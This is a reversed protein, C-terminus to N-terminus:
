SAPPVIPVDHGRGRNLALWCLIVALLGAGRGWWPSWSPFPSAYVAIHFAEDEHYTLILWPTSAVVRLHASPGVMKSFVTRNNVYDIIEVIENNTKSWHPLWGRAQLRDYLWNPLYQQFNSTTYVCRQHVGTLLNGEYRPVDALHSTNGAKDISIIRSFRGTTPNEVFHVHEADLTAVRDYRGPLWQMTPFHLLCGPEGSSSDMASEIAIADPHSSTVYMYGRGNGTREASLMGTETDYVQIGPPLTLFQRIPSARLSVESSRPEKNEYGRPLYADPLVLYKGDYSLAAQGQRHLWPLTITREMKCEPISWVRLLILDSCQLQTAALNALCTGLHGPFLMSPVATAREVQLMRTGDKCFSFTSLKPFSRMVSVQQTLLNWQMLDHGVQESLNKPPRREYRPQIFRLTGDPDAAHVGPLAYSSDIGLPMRVDRMLSKKAQLDIIEYQHPKQNQSQYILLYRGERDLLRLQHIRDIYPGPHTPPIAPEYTAEWYVRPSQWWGIGWWTGAGLLLALLLPWIPRPKQAM